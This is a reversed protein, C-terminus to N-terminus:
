PGMPQATIPSTPPTCPSGSPHWCGSASRRSRAGASGGRRPQRAARGSATSARGPRDGDGAGPDALHPRHDAGAGARRAAPVPARGAAGRGRAAVRHRGGDPRRYVCLGGSLVQHLRAERGGSLRHQARDDPRARRGWRELARDPHRGSRGARPQQHARLRGLAASRRDPRARRGAGGTRAAPDAAAGPESRRRHRLALRVGHDGPLDGAPQLLGRRCRDDLRQGQRDAGLGAVPHRALRPTPDREATRREPWPRGGGGTRACAAPRLAADTASHEPNTDGCDPGPSTRPGAGAPGGRAQGGRHRRGRRERGQPPRSRRGGRPGRPEAGASGGRGAGRHLRCGRDGQGQRIGRPGRGPRAAQVPRQHRGHLEDERRSPPLAAGLAAGIALGVAGLVLPQRHLTELFGERAREGYRRAQAGTRRAQRAVGAGMGVAQERAGRAFRGMGEKAGSATQRVGESAARFGERSREAADSVGAKARRAAESLGEEAGAAADWAREGLGAGVEDAGYVGAAASGHM